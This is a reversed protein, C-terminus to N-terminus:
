GWRRALCRAARQAGLLCLLSSTPMTSIAERACMGVVRVIRGDCTFAPDHGCMGNPALARALSQEDVGCFYGGCMGNAPPQYSTCQAREASGAVSQAAGAPEAVAGTGGDQSAAPGAGGTSVAQGGGGAAASRGGGAAADVVAVRGGTPMQDVGAAGPRTSNEALAGTTSTRPPGSSGRDNDISATDLCGFVCLVAALWTACAIDQTRV